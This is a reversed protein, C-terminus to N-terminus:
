IAMLMKTMWLVAACTPMVIGQLLAGYRQLRKPTFVFALDYVTKDFLIEITKETLVLEKFHRGEGTTIKDYNSKWDNFPIFFNADVMWGVDTKTAKIIRAVRRQGDQNLLEIYTGNVIPCRFMRSHFPDEKYLPLPITDVPTTM